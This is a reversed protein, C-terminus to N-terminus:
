TWTLSLDREVTDRDYVGVRTLQLTLEEFRKANDQAGQESVTDVPQERPQNRATAVDKAVNTSRFSLVNVMGNLRSETIPDFTTIYLDADHDPFRTQTNFVASGRDMSAIFRTVAAHAERRAAIVSYDCEQLVRVLDLLTDYKAWSALLAQRYARKNLTAYPM